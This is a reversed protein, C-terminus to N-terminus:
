KSSPSPLILGLLVNLGLMQWFSIRPGNFLVPVLRNWLAMELQTVGWFLAFLVAAVAVLEGVTRLTKM